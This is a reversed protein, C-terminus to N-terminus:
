VGRLAFSVDSQAVVFGAGGLQEARSGIRTSLAILNARTTTAAGFLGAFFARVNANSPNVTSVSLMLLLQLLQNTTFASMESFVIADIIDSTPVSTVAVAPGTTAKTPDNMLAVIGADNGGTVFPAYGLSLPDSQIESKLAATQTSTLAM